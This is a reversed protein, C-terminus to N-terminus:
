NTATAENTAAPQAGGRRSRLKASMVYVHHLYERTFEIIDDADDPTVDELGDPDPHAGDNGELRIEHAFQKLPETIIGKVALEDIQAVLKKKRDAGQDLCSTQISRRCMTVTAKHADIWRCRLAEKFDKQIKEPVAPDVSDNPKGLPYFAQLAFPRQVTNRIGAVLVFSKCAECQAATCITNTNDEFYPSGVPKFYSVKACHPCTGSAGVQVFQPGFNVIQMDFNYCAWFSVGSEAVTCIMRRHRVARTSQDNLPPPGSFAEPPATKTSRSGTAPLRPLGNITLIEGLQEAISAESTRHAFADPSLFVETIRERGSRETIAQALMRPSLASQMFERYTIIRSEHSTFGVRVTLGNGGDATTSKWSV